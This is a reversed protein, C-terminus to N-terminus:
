QARRTFNVPLLYSLEHVLTQLLLPRTTNLFFHDGPFMRLTFTAQTQIRWAALHEYPVDHDELGGLAAISCDLPRDDTYTYTECLAFDARLTPLLLELLEAHELLEAPTGNLRRLEALLAPEPLHHVPPDPDPLHPARHASVILHAPSRGANRRLHRALEFSVLAGMSHGFFAFPKDLYPLMAAHLAEILLPLHTYAPESLRKGRGPLQVPWVEITAPLRQQWSAFVAASGGSHPFCFLRLHAQPDPRPYIFWSSKTNWASVM